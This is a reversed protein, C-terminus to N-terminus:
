KHMIFLQLFTPEKIFNITFFPEIAIVLANMEVPLRFSTRDHKWPTSFAYMYIFANQRLAKKEYNKLPVRNWNMVSFCSVRVFPEASRAAVRRKILIIALLTNILLFQLNPFILTKIAVSSDISHIYQSCAMKKLWWMNANYSNAASLCISFNLVLCYFFLRFQRTLTGVESFRSSHLCSITVDCTKLM